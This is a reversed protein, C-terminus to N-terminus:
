CAEPTMMSGRTNTKVPQPGNIIVGDKDGHGCLDLLSERVTGRCMAREAM